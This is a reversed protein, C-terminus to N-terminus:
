YKFKPAPGEKLAKMEAKSRAISLKDQYCMNLVTYNMAKASNALNSCYAKDEDSVDSRLYNARNYARQENNICDAYAARDGLTHTKCRQEVPFMPFDGEGAWAAGSVMVALAILIARM